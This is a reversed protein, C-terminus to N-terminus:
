RSFGKNRRVYEIVENFRGNLIPGTCMQELFISPCRLNAELLMPTNNKDLVIDWGVFGCFPIRLHLQKCLELVNEFSPIKYNKFEKGTYSKDLKDGKLNYGYKNFVGENSIGVMIGGSGVNDVISGNGGCRFVSSLVSFKGNLFLTTIRFTNVSSPNFISTLNSQAILEQCVFNSKYKNFLKKINQRSLDDVILVDNGCSTDVTPKIVFKDNFNLITNIAIDEDIPTNNSDYYNGNINRVLEHPRNIDKYIFGYVNKNSFAHSEHIPNLIPLIFPQYIDDPLYELDFKDVKKYIGYYESSCPSSNNLYKRWFSYITEKEVKNLPQINVYKLYNNLDVKSAKIRKNQRYLRLLKSILNRM